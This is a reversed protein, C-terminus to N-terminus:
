NVFLLFCAHRPKKAFFGKNKTLPQNNNSCPLTASRSFAYAQFAYMGFPISPEFGEEEADLEYYRPHGSLRSILLLFVAIM